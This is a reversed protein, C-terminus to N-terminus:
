LLSSSAARSAFYQVPGQWREDHLVVESFAQNTYESIVCRWFAQAGLNKAAQRVEWRGPFMDFLRMAVFSGVGLRRYKRLVFFEAMDWTNSDGTLYSRHDVIAFGGLMEDVRFLIPYRDQESWCGILDKHGYSGLEDVDLQYIESFDYSYLEYLRLFRERDVQGARWLQISLM